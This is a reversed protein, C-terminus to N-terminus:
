STVTASPLGRPFAGFAARLGVDLATADVPGGPAGVYTREGDIEWPRVRQVSEGDVRLVCGSLWGSEEACLYAVVPSANGPDLRDWGEVEGSAAIGATMRTRAMPSIANATVGYRQMEMATIMTLSAIAAKAPGYNTQGVNGFLGAGSTTNVIRGTVRQGAKHQERWLACAHRSLSWTGKLHVAIVLDFDEESMGTIMRDRIIGANNVVADLHGYADVTRAVLRGVGDFDHVSTADASARGGMKEIEAVVEDAPAEGIAEGHLGAGLDNVVVTAGHRALELCHQRGLGRGGGTVIVVRDDLMGM